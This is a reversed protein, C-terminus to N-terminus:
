RSCAVLGCLWLIIGSQPKLEMMRQLAKKWGSVAYVHDTLPEVPQVALKYERLVPLLQEVEEETEEDVTHLCLFKLPEAAITQRDPTLPPLRIFGAGLVQLPAWEVWRRKLSEGPFQELTAKRLLASANGQM